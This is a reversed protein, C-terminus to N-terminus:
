AAVPARGALADLALVLEERWRDGLLGMDFRMQSRGISIGDSHELERRASPPMQATIEADNQTRLILVNRGDAREERAIAGINATKALERVRVIYLLNRVPAPPPGFRDNLERELDAAADSQDAAAMRQYLSLRLNLDDM